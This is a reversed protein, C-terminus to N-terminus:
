ASATQCPFELTFTAGKGLGESQVTLSGGLEKAALAGSHLGFGHGAKRTTFGHEFIRVLNAPPIGIGNDSVSIRIRDQYPGVRITMLKEPLQGEDLAYKANRILNVLIQLVKHKDVTATVEEFERVLRVDHREIAASNLHIADEVLDIVNLREALGSVQAYNQQMAVIQKIHEVNRTLSAIEQLIQEQERNLHDSLLALYGPLEKGRPDQSLFGGLDNSHAQMLAVAKGLSALGCNRIKESLLSTSINVSNLVNGVNHLVSTAVEAMGAQRSTELLQRHLNRLTEEAWIREFAGSCYDALTQLFNLDNRTYAQFAYRHLALIGTPKGKQRLPVRIISASPRTVDGYPNSDPDLSLPGERLTIEAGNQLVRRSTKSPKIRRKTTCNKREGNITDSEFIPYIEDTEASYLFLIMADWGFLEDAVKAILHAAAELTTATVLEQGLRSFVHASVEAQKRETIDQLIGVSGAPRGQEDVHQVSVDSIWRSKGSRTLVRMDCRWQKIEGTKIRRAAEESSLDAAEGQMIAEQKIRVWLEPTVEEPKYGILDEIGAGIFDYTRKNFDYAYPVAGVGSIARRYLEETKHSAENQGPQGGSPSVSGGGGAQSRGSQGSLGPASSAAQM